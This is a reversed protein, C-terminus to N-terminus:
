RRDTRFAKPFLPRLQDLVEGTTTFLIATLGVARAGEINTPVDDVFAARDPAVGLRECALRYIAPDPKRMGVESSDIVVEFLDTPYFDRWGGWEKVNNTLLAIQYHGAIRRAAEIMEDNRRIRGFLAKRVEIPDEPLVVTDGALESLTPGLRTFYEVETIQGTELLHFDSQVDPRDYHARFARVFTGPELGLSEEFGLFSELVSTTLVGGLDFIAADLEVHTTEPVAPLTAFPNSVILDRRSSLAM